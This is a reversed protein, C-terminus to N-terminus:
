GASPQEGGSLNKRLVWGVAGVVLGFVITIIGYTPEPGGESVATLGLRELGGGACELSTQPEIDSLLVWEAAGSEPTESLITGQADSILTFAEGRSECTVAAPDVSAPYGWVEAKGRLGQALVPVGVDAVEYFEVFEREDAAQGAPGAVILWVGVILFFPCGLLAIRSFLHLARRPSDALSM